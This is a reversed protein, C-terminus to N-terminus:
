SCLADRELRRVPRPSEAPLPAGARWAGDGTGTWAWCVSFWKMTRQATTTADAFTELSASAAASSPSALPRNVVDNRGYNPAPEQEAASELLSGYGWRSCPCQPCQWNRELELETVPFGPLIHLFGAGPM